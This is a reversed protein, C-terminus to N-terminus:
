NRMVKGTVTSHVSEVAFAGFTQGIAALRRVRGKAIGSSM